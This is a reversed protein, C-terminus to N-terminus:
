RFLLCHTNKSVPITDTYLSLSFNTLALKINLVLSLSPSLPDSNKEIDESQSNSATLKDSQQMATERIPLSIM